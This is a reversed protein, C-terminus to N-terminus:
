QTAAGPPVADAASVEQSGPTTASLVQMDIGAADMVKLRGEGLDDLARLIFAPPKKESMFNGSFVKDALDAPLMHEELAITRM